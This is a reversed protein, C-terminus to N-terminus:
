SFILYMEKLTENKKENSVAVIRISNRRFLAAIEYFTTTFRFYGHELM